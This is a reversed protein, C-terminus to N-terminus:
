QLSIKKTRPFLNSSRFSFSFIAPMFLGVPFVAFVFLGMVFFLSRDFFISSMFLDVLFFLSGRFFVGSM